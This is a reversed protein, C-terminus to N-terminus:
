SNGEDEGQEGSSYKSFNNKDISSAFFIEEPLMLHCFICRPLSNLYIKTCHKLILFSKAGPVYSLAQLCKQNDFSPVSHAVPM